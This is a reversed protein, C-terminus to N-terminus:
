VDVHRQKLPLFPKMTKILQIADIADGDTYRQAVTVLAVFDGVFEIVPWGNLSEEDTQRWTIPPRIDGVLEGVVEVLGAMGGTGDHAVDFKLLFQM